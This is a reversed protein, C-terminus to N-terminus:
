NTKEDTKEAKAPEKDAAIQEPTKLTFVKLDEVIELCRVGEERYSIAKEHHKKVVEIVNKIRADYVQIDKRYSNKLDKNQATHRDPSAEIADIKEQAETKNKEMALCQEDIAKYQKGWYDFLGLCEWARQEYKEIMAVRYKEQSTKEM